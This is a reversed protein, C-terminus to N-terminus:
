VGTLTNAPSEPHVECEQLAEGYTKVRAMKRDGHYGITTIRYDNGSYQDTWLMKLWSDAEYPSVL